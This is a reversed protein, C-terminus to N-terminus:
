LIAGGSVVPSNCSQCAFTMGNRTSRMSRSSSVSVASSGARRRSKISHCTAFHEEESQLFEEDFKNVVPLLPIYMTTGFLQMVAAVLVVLNYEEASYVISM